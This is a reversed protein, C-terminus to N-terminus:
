GGGVPLALLPAQAVGNHEGGFGYIQFGQDPIAVVPDCRAQDLLIHLHWVKLTPDYADVRDCGFVFIDNTPGIAAPGSMGQRLTQAGPTWTNKTIDYHWARGPLLLVIELNPYSQPDEAILPGGALISSTDSPGPIRCTPCRAAPLRAAAGAIVDGTKHLALASFREATGPMQAASSWRATALTLVDVRPTQEGAALGGSPALLRGGLAYLKGDRAALAPRARAVPLNSRLSWRDHDIDYVYIPSRGNAAVGTLYLKRDGGYTMVPDSLAVPVDARRKWSGDGDPNFRELQLAGSATGPWLVYIDPSPGGAAAAPTGTRPSFLPSAYLTGAVSQDTVPNPEPVARDTLVAARTGLAMVEGGVEAFAAPGIVPMDPDPAVPQRWTKGDYFHVDPWCSACPSSSAWIQDGVVFAREANGVSDGWQKTWEEWAVGDKSKWAGADARSEDGSETIVRGFVHWTYELRVASLFGSTPITAAKLTGSAWSTADRSAYGRLGTPTTGVVLYGDAGAGAVALISTLESALTVAEWSQGDASRWALPKGAKTGVVLFGVSASVVSTLSAGAFAAGGTAQWPAAGVDSGTWAGSSECVGRPARCGIAVFHVGSGAVRTLWVDDLAPSDPGSRWSVGDSTSYVQSGHPTRALGIVSSGATTVDVFTADRPSGLLHWAPSPRPTPRPGSSPAASEAPPSAESSASPSTSPSPNVSQCGLVAVLAAFALRYVPAPSRRPFRPSPVSGVM